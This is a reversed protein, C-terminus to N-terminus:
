AVSLVTGGDKTVKRAVKTNLESYLDHVDVGRRHALAALCSRIAERWEGASPHSEGYWALSTAEQMALNWAARETKVHRGDVILAGGEPSTIQAAKKAAAKRAKAEVHAAHEAETRTMFRAAAPRPAVPAEPFCTTCVREGALAIVEAPAQGSFETMWYHTTSPIRSCRSRSVDYHLHGGEVLYYRSWGGRRDFETELPYMLHVVEAQRVQAATIMDSIEAETKGYFAWRVTEYRRKAALAEHLDYLQNRLQAAEAGLRALHGDIRIPDATTIDTDTFIPAPAAKTTM